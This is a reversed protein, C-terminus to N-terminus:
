TKLKFLKNEKFFLFTFGLTGISLAIPILSVGYVLAQPANAGGMSNVVSGIAAHFAYGFIMIIMNALATTLGAVQERVITSAKYIVLIQYGSFVGILSFSLSILTPSMSQTLFFFFGFAMSVGALIITQLYGIKEALFNLLPAGFCMGIFIMSPLGAAISSDLGLVQKLFVVGWVDAFGEIPGVMFGASLCLALVRRNSLVEKVDAFVSSSAETKFDPIIWYTVLALLIGVLAFCEIVVQGGFADRMMSVPTGGYIAGLLGITVSISLMRAFRAESFTIRIIKFLGLIAASSGIGILLRGILPYIWNEAFLLPTLGISILLLSAPMIKKPGVRDLLLGMPLHFLSYGIYYIGSFQGFAAAGINFQQCIDELLISPIVRLIYQYAYFISAAM